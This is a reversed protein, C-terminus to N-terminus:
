SFHWKPQFKSHDVNTSNVEIQSRSHLVLKSQVPNEFQYQKVLNEFEPGQRICCSASGIGNIAGQVKALSLVDM